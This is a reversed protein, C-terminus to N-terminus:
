GVHHISGTGTVSLLAKGVQVFNEFPRLREVEAKLKEIEESLHKVQLALEHTAGSIKCEVLESKEIRDLLKDRMVSEYMAHSFQHQLSSPPIRYEVRFSTTVEGLEQDKVMFVADANLHQKLFGVLNQPLDKM